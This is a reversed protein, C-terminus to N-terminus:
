VHARGIKRAISDMPMEDMCISCEFLRQASQALKTRQASLARDEEDFERQLRMAYLIGDGRDFPPTPRPTPPSGPHGHTRGSRSDASTSAFTSSPASSAFTFSSSSSSIAAKSSSPHHSHHTSSSLHRPPTSARHYKSSAASLELQRILREQRRNRVEAEKIEGELRQQESKLLDNQSRLDALEAQMSLQALSSELVAQWLTPTSM